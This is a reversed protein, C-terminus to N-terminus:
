AESLAEFFFQALSPWRALEQPAEHGFRLVAGGPCLLLADGDACRGFLVGEPASSLEEALMSKQWADNERLALDHPLLHYEDSLDGSGCIAYYPALPQYPTGALAAAKAKPLAKSFDVSRARKAARLQKLADKEAIQRVPRPARKLAEYQVLMQAKYGDAPQAPLHADFLAYGDPLEGVIPAPRLASSPLADAQLLMKAADERILYVTKGLYRPSRPIHACVIAADPLDRALYCDQLEIRQLTHFAAAVKPLAGGVAHIIGPETPRLGRDLAIRSLLRNGYLHFYQGAAYRGKDQAWCFDVDTLNMAICASRFREPVYISDGWFKPAAATEHFARIVSVPVTEGDASPANVFASHTQDSFASPVLEYWGSDVDAFERIYLCRATMHNEACFAQIRRFIDDTRPDSLDLHSWGVSDCKLGLAHVFGINKRIKEDLGGHGASQDAADLIWHLTERYKM